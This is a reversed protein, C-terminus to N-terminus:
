PQPTTGIKFNNATRMRYFMGDFQYVTTETESSSMWVVGIDKYGHTKKDTVELSGGGSFLIVEPSKRASRVVWFWLSEAGRMPGLGIVVLDVEDSSNLHVEAAQFLKSPDHKESDNMIEFTEKAPHSALLVRLVEPSLNVPHQVPSGSFVRQEPPSTQGYAVLAMGALTLVLLPTGLLKPSIGGPNNMKKAKFRLKWLVDTLLQHM